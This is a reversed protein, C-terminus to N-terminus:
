DIISFFYIVFSSKFTSDIFWVENFLKRNKIWMKRLRAQLYSWTSIILDIDQLWNLKIEGFAVVLVRLSGEQFLITQFGSFFGIKPKATFFTFFRKPLEIISKETKTQDCFSLIKVLLYFLCFPFIKIKWKISESSKKDEIFLMFKLWFCVNLLPFERKSQLTQHRAVLYKQDMFIIEQRTLKSKFKKLCKYAKWPSEFSWFNSTIKLHLPKM